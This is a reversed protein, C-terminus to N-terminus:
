LDIRTIEFSLLGKLLSMGKSAEAADGSVPPNLIFKLILPNEPNDLVTMEGYWNRAKIVQVKVEKGNVQITAEGVDGEAKMLDLDVRASVDDGQKLMVNLSTAVDANGLALLQLEDAFNLYVTSNRTRTLEQYVPESVWVASSSRAAEGEPWLVPFFLKHTDNLLIGKMSGATVLLGYSPRPETSTAGKQFDELAKKYEDTLVKQQLTWQTEATRNPVFSNLTVVRQSLAPDGEVWQGQVLLAGQHIEFSSGQKFRIARAADKPSMRQIASVDLPKETQPSAAKSCGFGVLLMAGAIFFVRRVKSTM